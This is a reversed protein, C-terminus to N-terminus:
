IGFRFSYLTSSSARARALSRRTDWADLIWPSRWTRVARTGAPRGRRGPEDEGGPTSAVDERVSRFVDKCRRSGLLALPPPWSTTAATRPAPRGSCSASTGDRPPRYIFYRGGRPAISVTPDLKVPKSQRAYLRLLGKETKRARRLGRQSWAGPRRAGGAHRGAAASCAAVAEGREERGPATGAPDEMDIECRVGPVRAAEAARIRRSPRLDHDRAREALEKSDLLETWAICAAPGDALMRRAERDADSRAVAVAAAEDVFQGCAKNDWSPAQPSSWPTCAPTNLAAVGFAFSGIFLVVTIPLKM